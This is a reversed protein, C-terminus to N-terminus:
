RFLTSLIHNAFGKGRYEKITATTTDRATSAHKFLGIGNLTFSVPESGEFVGSSLEPVYGRRQLISKFRAYIFTLWYDRFALSFSAFLDNLAIGSLTSVPTMAPKLAVAM